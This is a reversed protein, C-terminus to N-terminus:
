VEEGNIEDLITAFQSDIYTSCYVKISSQDEPTWYDVGKVPTEGKPGVPGTSGTAGQPGRSGTDGKDGKEGKLSALQEETFDEYTFPDGKEGQEGQIGQPGTLALLQEETFDEYTFPDGKEGAPGLISGTNIWMVQTGSWVYLNGGVMYADGTTGSEHAEVLEEYTNFADLVNIGTGDDGKEGQEGKLADYDEIHATTIKTVVVEVITDIDVPETLIVNLNATDITYESENLTFGNVRVDVMSTETYQSPLKFISENEEATTYMTKYRKTFSIKKLNANMEDILMDVDKMTKKRLAENLQREEENKNREDENEARELENAKRTEENAVVQPLYVKAEDELKLEIEEVELNKEM